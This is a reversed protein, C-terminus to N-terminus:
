LEARRAECVSPRSGLGQRGRPGARRVRRWRHGVAHPAVCPLQHWRPRACVVLRAGLQVFRVLSHTGPLGRTDARLFAHLVLASGSLHGRPTRQPARALTNTVCGQAPKRACGSPLRTVHSPLMMLQGGDVELGKCLEEQMDRAIQQLREVPLECASRLADMVGAAGDAM